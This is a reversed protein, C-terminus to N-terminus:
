PDAVINTGGSILVIGNAGNSIGNLANFMFVNANTWGYGGANGYATLPVTGDAKLDGSGASAAVFQATTNAPNFALVDGMNAPSNTITFAIGLVDLVQNTAAAAGPTGIQALISNTATELLGARTNLANTAAYTATPDFGIGAALANTAAAMISLISNTASEIPGVAGAVAATAANTRTVVISDSGVSYTGEITLNQSGSWTQGTFPGLLWQYGSADSWALFRNSTAGYMVPHNNWVGNTLDHVLYGSWVGSVTYHYEAADRTRSVADAATLSGSIGSALSNTSAAVTANIAQTASGVIALISNTAPATAGYIANLAQTARRLDYQALANTWMAASYPGDDRLRNVNADSGLLLGTWAGTMTLNTRITLAGVGSVSISWANSEPTYWLWAAYSGECPDSMWFPFGNTYGGVYMPCHYDFTTWEIEYEGITRARWDLDNTAIRVANTQGTLTAIGAALSNTAAGTIAALSNTAAGLVTRVDATAAALSNTAAQTTALMANTAAGIKALIANTATDTAAARANLANTAGSFTAIVANTAAGQAALMANTAAAVLALSRTRTVVLDPTSIGTYTADVTLSQAGIPEGDGGHWQYGSADRWKLNWSWETVTFAPHGLYIGNQVLAYGGGPGGSTSYLGLEATSAFAPFINLLGNTSDALTALIANTAIGATALIANTAAETEARMANTAAGMTALMANTAAELLGARDAMANTAAGQTAIISNTAAALQALIDNTAAGVGAPTGVQAIIDNTAAELLGARSNLANTAGKLATDDYGAVIQAIIANTAAQVTATSPAGVDAASLTVRSVGDTVTGVIGNIVANSIVPIAYTNSTAPNWALAAKTASTPAQSQGSAPLIARQIDSYYALPETWTGYPTTTIKWVPRSNTAYFPDANQPELTYMSDALYNWWNLRANVATDWNVLCASDLNQLHFNTLTRSVSGVALVERLTPRNTMAGLQAATVRHPNDVRGTHTNVAALAATDTEATLWPANTIQPYSLTCGNTLLPLSGYYPVMNFVWGAPGWGAATTWDGSTKYRLQNYASFGLRSQFSPDTTPGYISVVNSVTGVLLPGTMARSGDLPLLTSATTTLAARHAANSAEFASLGVYSALESSTVWHNTCTWIGSIHTAAPNSSVVLKGRNWEQSFTSNTVTISSWFTGNTWLDMARMRWEFYDRGTSTNTVVMGVSQNNTPCWFLMAQWNTVTAPAGDDRVYARFTPTTLEVTTYLYPLNPKRLDITTSQIQEARVALSLCLLLPLLLKKM